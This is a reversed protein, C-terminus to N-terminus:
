INHFNLLSFSHKAEVSLFGDKTQLKLKVGNLFQIKIIMTYNVQIQRVNTIHLTDMAIDPEAEQYPDQHKVKILPKMEIAINQYTRLLTVVM